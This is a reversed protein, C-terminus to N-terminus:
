DAPAPAATADAEAADAEAADPAAAADAETADPEAEADAETADPEAADPATADPEAADPGAAARQVGPTVSDDFIRQFTVDPDEWPGAVKYIVSSFRDLQKGFLKSVLYVAIAAPLGSILAAVWPLNSAIPLTTVLEGEIKESRVDAHGVFQFRSSRGSVDLKPVAIVGQRFLLEGNIADFPIGAQFVTGLDLRLRRVFETLNLITVVRLTGEAAGSSQLFSGEQAVLEVRGTTNALAFQLPSGSWSLDLDFQGARTKVIRDYHHRTLVTGFDDFGLVGRLHTRPTTGGLWHLELGETGDMRLGRLEGHIASFYYDDGLDQLLFDLPGWIDAGSRLEAIAVQLDPLDLGDPGLGQWKQQALRDLEAVDLSDLEILVPGAPPLLARGKLWDTSFGIRWDGDTQDADLTVQAFQQGFIGLEAVQLGRLVGGGVDGGPPLYTDRFATWDDWHLRQVRGGVVMGGTGTVALPEGFGLTGGRYGDADLAVRLFVADDLQLRLTKQATAPLAIDAKLARRAESQKGWPAPLDLSVGHLDSDIHLHPPGGPPMRLQMDALASGTALRLLDLQLWHRLDAMAIRSRLAITLDSPATARQQVDIRLPEGWLSGTMGDASFGRESHFHLQGSIDDLVLRLAASHLRVRHWDTRVSVQPALGPESLNLQLALRAQLGGSAQWDGLNDGVIARLPSTKILTLGDSADAAVRGKDVSLRLQGAADFRLRARVNRAQADLVRASDVYADVDTDTVLVLGNVESLAPWDPHYDLAGEEVEFFLQMTRYDQLEAGTSGRYLFVGTRVVGEGISHELWDLTESGLRYPLYKDRHVPRSDRLGALVGLELGTVSEQLPWRLSFLGQLQGEPASASVPGSRLYFDEEDITWALEAAVTHYNLPARYVAPLALSVDAAQLQLLGDRLGVSAFGGLNAVSPVGRWSATTLGSFNAQLRWGAPDDLTDANLQLREIRGRPALRALWDAAVPPLVGSPGLYSSLAAVDVDAARLQLARDRYEGRLQEVQLPQERGELRLRHLAFQWGGQAYDAQLRGSVHALALAGIHVNEATGAAIVNVEGPQLDLWLQGQVSGSGTDIGLRALWAPYDALEAVAGNFHFEGSFDDRELLSGRGEALLDLWSEGAPTRLALRLRRFNGERQLDTDLYFQRQAPGERLQVAAEAFELREVNLLFAALANLSGGSETGMGSLQLQGEETLELKVSLGSGVLAYCHLSATRLSALVDLEVYLRELTLPAPAAATGPLRIGILEFRPTLSSWSGELRDVELVFPLRANVWDLIEARYQSINGVLLRGLSAYLALAVIVVVLLTWLRPIVNSFSLPTM